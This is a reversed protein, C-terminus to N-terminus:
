VRRTGPHASPSLRELDPAERSQRQRDLRAGPTATLPPTSVEPPPDVKARSATLAKINGWNMCIVGYVMLGFAFFRTMSMM